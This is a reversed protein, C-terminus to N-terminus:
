VPVETRTMPNDADNADRVTGDIAMQEILSALRLAKL